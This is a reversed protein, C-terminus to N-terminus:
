VPPPVNASVLFTARTELFIRYRSGTKLSTTKFPSEKLTQTIDHQHELISTNVNFTLM